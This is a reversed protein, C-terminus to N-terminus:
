FYGDQLYFLEASRGAAPRDTKSRERRARRAPTLVLRHRPVAGPGVLWRRRVTAHPREVLDALTETRKGDM